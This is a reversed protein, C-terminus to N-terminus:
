ILWDINQPKFGEYNDIAYSDNQELMRDLTKATVYFCSDDPLDGRGGSFYQGWSNQIAFLDDKYSVSAMCHAWRPGPTAVGNSDRTKNFGVNSCITLFCGNAIAKKADKSNLIKTFGTIKHRQGIPELMDPVGTCGWDRSLEMSYSELNFKDYKERFLTGYKKCGEVAWGGVSGDSRCGIRKGGVEVRSIGYIYETSLMKFEDASGNNKAINYLWTMHIACATGFSVCTGASKQDQPPLYKGLVKKSIEYGSVAIPLEQEAHAIPTDAFTQFPQLAMVAEVEQPMEIWGFYEEM